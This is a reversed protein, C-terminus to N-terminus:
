RAELTSPEGLAIEAGDDSSFHALRCWLRHYRAEGLLRRAARKGRSQMGKLGRTLPGADLLHRLATATMGRTIMLRGQATLSAFRRPPMWPDSHFLQRYGARECALAVDRSWRGGPASITTVACGLRDELEQKSALLENELDEPSCDTLLRHSWGHSGVEHGATVMERAGAWSMTGNGREILGAPLFFLGNVGADALAPMVHERHSAHGDDFTIRVPAKGSAARERFARLHEAFLTTSLQYRYRSAAPDIAHYAVADGQARDEVSM